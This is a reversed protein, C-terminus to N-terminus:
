DADTGEQERTMPHERAPRIADSMRALFGRLESMTLRMEGGWTDIIGQMISVCRDRDAELEEVYDAWAELQDAHKERVGDGLDGTGQVAARAQLAKRRLYNPDRETPM